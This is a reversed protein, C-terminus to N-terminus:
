DSSEGSKGFIEKALWVFVLLVAACFSVLAGLMTIIVSIGSTSLATLGVGGAFVLAGLVVCLMSYHEATEFKNKGKLNKLTKVGLM